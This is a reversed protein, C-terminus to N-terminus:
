LPDEQEHLHLGLARAQGAIQAGGVSVYSNADILLGPGEITWHQTGNNVKDAWAVVNGGEFTAVLYGPTKLGGHQNNVFHYDGYDGRM